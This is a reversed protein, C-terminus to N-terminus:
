GKAIASVVVILACIALFGVAVVGMVVWLRKASEVAAMGGMPPEPSLDFADADLEELRDLDRRLEDDDAYRHEPQRRMATLVVAELAPTVEPNARRIRTPTKTLHGAMVAMWNDGGFPVHGALVEYMMVGWAYIDSRADGRDGQIQEPSMYDPTGLGETLHKFTLRRAGELLATGFDIVKLQGDNTVLINEPKLDRHIVGHDHLYAIASALQRAWDLALDIPLRGDPSEDRLANMRVRLNEGEIYELVMYHDTRNAGDDRNAVVNPHDLREAIDRERRFRQFIAPDALLSPNPVKLVVLEGTDVARAKYTEAYAGAGLEDLIEYGDIRDGKDHRM